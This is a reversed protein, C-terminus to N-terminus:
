KKETQSTVLEKLEEIQKEIKKFRRIHQLCMFYTFGAIAFAIYGFIAGDNM